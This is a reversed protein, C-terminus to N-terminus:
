LSRTFRAKFRSFPREILFFSLSATLICAAFTILARLPWYSEFPLYVSRRLLWFCYIVPEHWLYLSYSILGLYRLPRWQM